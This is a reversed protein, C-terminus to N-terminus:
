RGSSPCIESNETVGNPMMELVLQMGYHRVALADRANRDAAGFSHFLKVGHTLHV